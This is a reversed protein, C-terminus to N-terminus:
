FDLGWVGEFRVCGKFLEVRFCEVRGEGGTGITFRWGHAPFVGRQHGLLSSAGGDLGHCGYHCNTLVSFFFFFFFRQLDLASSVLVLGVVLFESPQRATNM